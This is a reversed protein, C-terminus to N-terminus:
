DRDKNQLKGKMEFSWGGDDLGAAQIAIRSRDINENM